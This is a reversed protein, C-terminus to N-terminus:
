VATRALAVREFHLRLAETHTEFCLEIPDYVVKIAQTEGNPVFPLPLAEAPFPRAVCFAVTLVGNASRSHTIKVPWGKPLELAEEGLERVAAEELSEGTEVFGGPLAWQGLMPEIGRQVLLVGYRDNESHVPLVMVAVPTPSIWTESGCAACLAHTRAPEPFKSGCFSCHAHKTKSL